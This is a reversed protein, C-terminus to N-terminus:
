GQTEIREGNADEQESSFLYRILDKELVIVNDPKDTEIHPTAIM